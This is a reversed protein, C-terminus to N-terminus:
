SPEQAVWQDLWVASPDFASLDIETKIIGSVIDFILVKPESQNLSTTLSIALYRGAPSLEVDSVETDTLSTQYKKYAQYEGGEFYEVLQQDPRNALKADVQKKNDVDREIQYFSIETKPVLNRYDIIEDVLILIGQDKFFQVQRKVAGESKKPIDKIPTKYGRALDYIMVEGSSSVFVATTSSFYSGSLGRFTDIYAPEDGSAPLYKGITSTQQASMNEVVLVEKDDKAFFIDSVASKAPITQKLDEVKSGERKIPRANIFGRVWNLDSNLDGTLFRYDNNAYYHAMGVSSKLVPFEKSRLDIALPLLSNDLFNYQYLKAVKPTLRNDVLTLRLDGSLDEDRYFPKYGWNETDTFQQKTPYSFGAVRFNFTPRINTQYAVEPTKTWEAQARKQLDVYAPITQRITDYIQALKLAYVIDIKFNAGTSFVQSAYDKLQQEYFRAHAQDIKSLVYFVTAVETVTLSPFSPTPFYVTSKLAPNYFNPPASDFHDQIKVVGARVDALATEILETTYPRKTELLLNHLALGPLIFLNGIYYSTSNVSTTSSETALKVAENVEALALKLQNEDIYTSIPETFFLQKIEPYSEIDTIYKAGNKYGLTVNAVAEKDSFHQIFSSKTETPIAQNKNGWYNLVIVVFFVVSVIILFRLLLRNHRYFKLEADM